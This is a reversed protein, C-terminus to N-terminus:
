IDGFVAALHLIHEGRVAYTKACLGIQFPSDVKKGRQWVRVYQNVSM